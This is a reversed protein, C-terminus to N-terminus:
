DSLAEEAHRRAARVRHRVDEYRDRADDAIHKAKRRILAVGAGVLAGILLGAMFTKAGGHESEHTM